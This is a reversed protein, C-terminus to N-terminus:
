VQPAGQLGPHHNCIKKPNLDLMSLSGALAAESVDHVVIGRTMVGDQHGRWHGQEMRRSLGARAVKTWPLAGPYKLLPHVVLCLLRTGLCQVPSTECALNAHSELM